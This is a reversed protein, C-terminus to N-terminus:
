RAQQSAAWALAHPLHVGWCAADHGGDFERYSLASCLPHLADRLRRTPELAVWESLGVELHVTDLQPAHEIISRTLWEPTTGGAENPWWFSGSQCISAGFRDPRLCQAYLATLGGLSAGAITTRRPDRAVPLDTSDVLSCIREIFEPNCTLEAIRSELGGHGLLLTATAPHINNAAWLDLEAGGDRMWRDGDLLVLVNWGDPGVPVDPVHWWASPSDDDTQSITGRRGRLPMPLASQAAPGEAFSGSPGLRAAHPDPRALALLDYFDNISAHRDPETVALSRRRRAELDTSSPTDQSAAGGSGGDDVAVAYSGRWGAGMQLNLHWLDTGDVREFLMNSLTTDDVLKNIILAVRDAEGRHLFTYTRVSGSGTVLPTGERLARDWLVRPPRPTPVRAPPEPRPAHPPITMARTSTGDPPSGFGTTAQLGNTRSPRMRVSAPERM